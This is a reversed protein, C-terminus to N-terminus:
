SYILRNYASALSQTIKGPKGDGLINGDIKVVPMVNKTTSTIFAEKANRLEELSVNREETPYMKGSIELVHKRTIGKLMESQQTLVKGDASVIFFNARPCERLCGDHVYLVDEVGQEKLVPQLWIAKLYDLTKADAFQRQYPYTILSMGETQLDKSLKFSQQTILLNPEAINYGDPSYGGTLTMRIGSDSFGNKQILDMIMQKLQERSQKVSLRMLGASHYFRDLHDDLFVPKQNVVKFFDFIGYGRQVALDKINIYAEDAPILSGNVWVYKKNM